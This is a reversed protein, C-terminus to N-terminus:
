PNTKMFKKIKSPGVLTQVLKGNQDFVLLTPFSKVSYENMIARVETISVKAFTAKSENENAWKEFIPALGKCAPCTPSYVELYVEGNAKELVKNLHNMSKISISAADVSGFCALCILLYITIKRM